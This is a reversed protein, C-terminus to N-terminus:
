PGLKERVIDAYANQGAITPHLSQPDAFNLAVPYFWSEGSDCFAHGAFRKTPDAFEVSARSGGAAQVSRRLANNLSAQLGNMFKAEEIDIQAGGLFGGITCYSNKDDGDYRYLKKNEGFLRPYGVVVIRAYPARKRLNDIIRTIPVIDAEYGQKDKPAKASGRGELADIRKNTIYKLNKDDSCRTPLVCATVTDVFGVDNGGISFTIKETDAAVNLVQAQESPNAHNPTFMDFSISGSCARFTFPKGQGLISGYAHTSRHCRNTASDTATDYDGTGEGSSYSDGLAVYGTIFPTAGTDIRSLTGAVVDTVYVNGARDVAVGDPNTLGWALDPAGLAGKPLVRVKGATADTFYLSGDNGLALGVGFQIGGVLRVPSTSGAPLSMLNGSGTELYFLNGQQDVALGNPRQLDSLVTTPTSSGRDLRSITGTAFDSFYVNGKGDVGVGSAYSLGTLLVKKAAAGPKWSSLANREPIYITGSKDRSIWSADNLGTLAVAPAPAGKKLVMLRGAHNEVFYVDGNDMAVVGTPGELGTLVNNAPKTANIHAGPAASSRVPQPGKLGTNSGAAPGEPAASAVAPVACAIAAACMAAIVSRTLLRRGQRRGSRIRSPLQDPRRPSRGRMHETM